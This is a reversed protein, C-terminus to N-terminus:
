TIVINNNVIRVDKTMLLKHEDYMGAITSIYVIDDNNPADVNVATVIPANPDKIHPSLQSDLWAEDHKYVDEQFIRIIKHGKERARQMKFVDFHRTLESPRWNQVQKFHQNGDLELIVNYDPLYFDFPLHNKNKCNDLTFRLEVNTYKKTLYVFFLKETKNVCHPCGSRDYCRTRIQSKWTHLYECVWWIEEYSSARFQSPKLDGNKTESWQSAIDPYTNDITRHDCWKNKSCFPCGTGKGQLRNNVSTKWEHKCGCKFVNPCTWWVIQGSGAILQNPTLNGNKSTHFEKCLEPHTVDLTMHKCLKKHACFSCGINRCARNYIPAKYVHECGHSCKKPCLWFVIKGSGATVMAPTLKGNLTPHWQSSLESHTFSLSTHECLKAHTCFPCGERQRSKITAQYEHKCGRPCKKGCLWWVLKNSGYSFMALKLKGNKTPHWMAELLKYYADKTPPWKNKIIKDVENTTKYDSM